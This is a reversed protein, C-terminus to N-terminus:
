PALGMRLLVEAVPEERPGETRAVPKLVQLVKTLNQAEAAELLGDLAPEDGAAQDSAIKMLVPWLSTACWLPMMQLASAYAFAAELYRRRAALAIGRNVLARPFHPQLALAQEYAELADEHRGRNALVAGLMNWKSARRRADGFCSGDCDMAYLAAAFDSLVTDKGNLLQLLGSAIAVDAGADTKERWRSLWGELASGDASVPCAERMWSDLCESVEVKPDGEAENLLCVARLLWAHQRATAPAAAPDGGAIDESPIVVKSFCRLALRDMNLDMLLRGMEVCYTFHDTWNEERMSHSLAAEWANVANALDGSAQLERADIHPNESSEYMNDKEDHFYLDEVDRKSLKPESKPRNDSAFGPKKEFLGEFTKKEKEKGDRMRQRLQELDRRVSADKPMLKCARVLEWEAEKLEDLEVLAKAKRYIAKANEPELDLVEECMELAQFAEPPESGLCCLALNLLVPVRVAKLEAKLEVEESAEAHRLLALAQRYDKKAGAKDQAKFKANGAERTAVAKEFVERLKEPSDAEGCGHGHSHTHGHGHGDGHDHDCSGAAESM